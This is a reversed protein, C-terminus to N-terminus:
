NDLRCFKVNKGISLVRSLPASNLMFVPIIPLFISVDEIWSLQAQLETLGFLLIVSMEMKHFIQGFPNIQPIKPLHSIDAHLHCISTYNGSNVWTPIRMLKINSSFQSPDIDIWEPDVEDGRYCFLEVVLMQNFSINPVTRTFVRKFEQTESVQTNKLFYGGDVYRGSM